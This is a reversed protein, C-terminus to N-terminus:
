QEIKIQVSIEGRWDALQHLHLVNWEIEPQCLKLNWHSTEYYEGFVAISVSSPLTRRIQWNAAWPIYVHSGHSMSDRERGKRTVLFRLGDRQWWTYWSFIDADRSGDLLVGSERCCRHTVLCVAIDFGPSNRRGPVGMCSIHVAHFAVKMDPSRLFCM